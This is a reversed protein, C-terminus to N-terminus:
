FFIWPVCFSPSHFFFLLHLIFNFRLQEGWDLDRGQSGAKGKWCNGGGPHGGPSWVQCESGCHGEVETRGIEPTGGGVWKRLGSVRMAGGREEWREVGLGTIWWSRSIECFFYSRFGYRRWPDWLGRRLDLGQSKVGQGAFFSGSPNGLRWDGAGLKLGEEVAM